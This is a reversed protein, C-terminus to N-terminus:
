NTYEPQATGCYQCQESALPIQRGCRACKRLSSTSASRTRFERVSVPKKKTALSVLSLTIGFFIMSILVILAKNSESPSPAWITALFLILLLTLFFVFAMTSNPNKRNGYCKSCLNLKGHEVGWVYLCQDCFSSGCDNCLGVALLEPHNPCRRVQGGLRPPVLVEAGCYSCKVQVIGVPITEKHPAGCFPCTLVEEM